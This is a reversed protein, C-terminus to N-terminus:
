EVLLERVSLHRLFKQWDRHLQAVDGSGRAVCSFRHANERLSELRLGCIDHGLSHCGVVQHSCPARALEKVGHLAEIADHPGLGGCAGGECRRQFRAHGRRLLHRKEESTQQHQHVGVLQGRALLHGPRQVLSERGRVDREHDLRSQQQPLLLLLRRAQLRVLHQSRVGCSVWTGNRRLHLQHARLDGGGCSVPFACHLRQATHRLNAVPRCYHRRQYGHQLRAPVHRRRLLHHVLCHARQLTCGGGRVASGSGHVCVRAVFVRLRHLTHRQHGGGGELLYVASM